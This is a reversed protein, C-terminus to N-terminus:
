VFVTRFDKSAISGVFFYDHQSLFASFFWRDIFITLEEMDQIITSQLLRDWKVGILGCFIFNLDDTVM